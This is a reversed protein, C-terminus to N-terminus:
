RLASGPFNALYSFQILKLNFRLPPTIPTLLDTIRNKIINCVLFSTEFIAVVWVIYALYRGLDAAALPSPMM